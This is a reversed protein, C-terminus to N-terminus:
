AASATPPIDTLTDDARLLLARGLVWAREGWGLSARRTFSDYGNREIAGLIRAYGTACAVACRQADAELMGIGPAALEYYARARAVQHHMFAHWRARQVLASGDLIDEPTLGAERLEDTPLYCRGRRADEGIDRLVNTLQMAVGLSRAHGVAIPRYAPGGRVGMVSACMEGVCGAVGECYGLLDSWSGWRTRTLDSAVGDLLEYLPAAPIAYHEIARALERFVPDSGEGQLALDLKRRHGVLRHAAGGGDASRDAVDVLDDAVRCFAYLAYTARRKEPPLLLSAVSFTKAHKRTLLECYRADTIAM